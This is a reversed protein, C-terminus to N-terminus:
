SARHASTVSLSLPTMSRIGLDSSHDGHSCRNVFWSAVVGHQSRERNLPERPLRSSRRGRIEAVQLSITAMGYAPRSDLVVPDFVGDELAGGIDGESDGRPGADVQSAM